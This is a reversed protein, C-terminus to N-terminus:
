IPRDDDVPVMVHKADDSVMVEKRAQIRACLGANHRCEHLTPRRECSVLGSARNAARSTMRRGTTVTGVSVGFAFGGLAHELGSV